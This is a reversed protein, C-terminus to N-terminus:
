NKRVDLCLLQEADRLLLRGDVLAMPAWADKGHLVRARALKEYGSVSARALTLEGNDNLIFIKNDAFLFPGLGFRETKGSTWVLKGDPSLCAFQARLEAADKPLVAFLHGQFLVPTHQECSFVTKELKFAPEAQITGGSQHLRLMMSGGGYGATLFLSQDDVGLPSPSLVSHTWAATKWLLQGRDPGDAAIGALGGMAAYVYMRRGLLKMPVISSHSMKWGDLNPTRWLVKGTACDVAMMLVEKGAPALIAVGDEILPCQGTYWLPVDSGYERVLDLGWRFEGTSRDVCSVHCRPGISVVFQEDVAPVTRSVGHNRKTPAQYWRRWIEKGDALSFSRLLDGERQEDYDMVYVCGNWVSPGSHGESLAVSWLVPPGKDGWTEALPPTSTSINSFETGRLRPWASSSGSPNGGLKELTGRLDVVEPAPTSLTPAATPVPSAVGAVTAVQAVRKEVALPAPQRFWLGLVGAAIALMLGLLVANLQRENM